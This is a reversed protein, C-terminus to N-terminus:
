NKSFMMFCVERLIGWSLSSLRRILFIDPMFSFPWNDESVTNLRLLMWLFALKVVMLDALLHIQCRQTSSLHPPRFNLATIPTHTPAFVTTLLKGFDLSALSLRKGPICWNRAQFHEFTNTEANKFYCFVVVLWLLGDLPFHMSLNYYM